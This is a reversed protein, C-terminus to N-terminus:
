PAVPLPAAHAIAHPGTVILPARRNLKWAEYMGIGIIILGIINQLGALFPAACVFAVLLAVVLLFRGFSPPKLAPVAAPQAARTAETSRVGASQGAVAVAEAPAKRIGDIIMPVYTAVIALYTLAMALAQYRWGGRRYSGWRVATGVAVGVVISILGFEYGTMASIAYYLAAGALAAASGAGAARLFRAAGSGADLSTQLRFRCAECAIANNVQFYSGLIQQGCFGCVTAPAGDQFEAQDFQLNNTDSM